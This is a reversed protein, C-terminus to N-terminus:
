QRSWAQNAGGTCTWLVVASGDGTAWGSVDLCKGSAEHVIQGNANLLWKEQAAGSCGGAAVRGDATATTLCSGEPTRLTGPARGSARARTRM